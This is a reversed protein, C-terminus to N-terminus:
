GIFRVCLSEIKRTYNNIDKDNDYHMIKDLTDYKQESTIHFDLKQRLKNGGENRYFTALVSVVSSPRSSDTDGMERTNGISSCVFEIEHKFGDTAVMVVHFFSEIENRGKLPKKGKEENSQLSKGFPEYVTCDETFLSLLSPMNKEDILRFYKLVIDQDDIEIHFNTGDDTSKM